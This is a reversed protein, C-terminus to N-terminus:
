SYGAEKHFCVICGTTSPPDFENADTLTVGIDKGNLVDYIVKNNIMDELAPYGPSYRQGAKEKKVGLRQRMLGHTYEML